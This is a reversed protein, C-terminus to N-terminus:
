VRVAQRTPLIGLIVASAIVTAMTTSYCMLVGAMGAGAYCFRNM